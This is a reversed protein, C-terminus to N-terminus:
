KLKEAVIKELEDYGEVKQGNVFFTPTASVGQRNGLTMDGRILAEVDASQSQCQNFEPIDLSAQRAYNELDAPQFNPQNSFLLSHYAWFKGQKDACESAISAPMALPHVTTLPFQRYSFRVKDKYKALVQKIVPEAAECAPCQFDSFEEILVAATEPGLLHRPTEVITEQNDQLVVYGLGFIVTLVVVISVLAPWSIRGSRASSLM